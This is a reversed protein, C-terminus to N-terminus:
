HAGSPRTYPTGGGEDLIRRLECARRWSENYQRLDGSVPDSFSQANLPASSNNPDPEIPNVGPEISLFTSLQAAQGIKRWKIHARSSSTDTESYHCGNCTGFGFIHRALPDYSTTANSVNWHVAETPTGAAGSGSISRLTQMATPIEYSEALINQENSILFTDLAASRNRSSDPTKALSALKLFCASPTGACDMLKHERFEWVKSTGSQFDIENTRIQSIASGNPAGPMAGSAVVRETLRELWNKYTSNQTKSGMTSFWSLENFDYAWDILDRSNPLKYELIFLAQLAGNLKASDGVLGLNVAGFVFRLEGTSNADAPGYSESGALDLRPVIALLRFPAVNLDLLCAGSGHIPTNLGARGAGCNVGSSATIWPDILNARIMPRASVPSFGNINAQDNEWMSLWRGVFESPNKPGAIASILNKFTWKGLSSSTFGNATCKSSDWTTRCQDEVVAVDRIIMEKEFSIRHNSYPCDDVVVAQSAQTIKENVTESDVDVTCGASMVIPLCLIITTRYKM